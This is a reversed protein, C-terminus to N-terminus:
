QEGNLLEEAYHCRVYSGQIKRFPQVNQVCAPRRFSCRDAFRCGKIQYYTEPVVGKIPEIIKSKSLAVDPISQLLAKTYPHKPYLFIDNVKAEEIIQGAYMVAVRDAMQAVVGMDHTILILAMNRKRKLQDLLNMIGAQITVDLATTPEDAILVKPNCALAIAILVRQRQGGSLEHPYKKLILGYDSLGVQNLLDIVREKKERGSCKLHADIIEEIQTRITFVPNLSTLADQFIMSIQNGRIKDLKHDTLRQLEQNEFKISGSTVKGNNKLLGLVSLMTISKGSGSEGVLCLTEGKDVHLSVDHVLTREESHVTYTTELHKIELLHDM